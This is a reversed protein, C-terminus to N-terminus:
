FYLYNMSCFNSIKVKFAQFIIEIIRVLFYVEKSRLCLYLSLNYINMSVSQQSHLYVWNSM